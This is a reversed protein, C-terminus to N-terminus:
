QAILASVGHVIEWEQVSMDARLGQGQIEVGEGVIRVPDPSTLTQTEEEWQLTKVEVTAGNSLHLGIPGDRRTVWFNRTRTNIQGEDGAVTIVEAPGGHFVAQVSQLRGLDERDFFEAREATVAWEVHGARTRFITFRSIRVDAALASAPSSDVRHRTVGLVIGGLVVPAALLLM